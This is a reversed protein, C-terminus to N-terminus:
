LKHHQRLYRSRLPILAGQLVLRYDDVPLDQVLHRPILAKEDFELRGPYSAVLRRYGADCAAEVVADSFCGCPFCLSTIARGLMDELYCKSDYLEHSWESEPVDTLPRHSWTHGEFSFGLRQLECVQSWTLYGDHGILDIPIFVTPFVKEKIFYDRNDWIGCFGDDFCVLLQKQEKLDSLTRAFSFGMMKAHEIHSLLLELPTGMDTYVKGVDHYYVVKPGDDRFFLSLVTLAYHKIARRM